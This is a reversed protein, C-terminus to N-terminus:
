RLTGDGRRDDLLHSRAVEAGSIVGERARGQGRYLREDGGSGVVHPAKGANWTTSRLPVAGMQRQPRPGAKSAGWKKLSGQRNYHEPKDEWDDSQPKAPNVVIGLSHKKHRALEREVTGWHSPISPNVPIHICPKNPEPPFLAEVIDNLNDQRGILELYREM